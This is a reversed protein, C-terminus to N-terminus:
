RTGRRAREAIFDEYSSNGDDDYIECLHAAESDETTTYNMDKEKLVLDLIKM